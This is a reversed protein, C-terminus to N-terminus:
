AKQTTPASATRGTPWSALIGLLDSEQDDLDRFLQGADYFEAVAARYQRVSEGIAQEKAGELNAIATEAKKKRSTIMWYILGGAGLLVIVGAIPNLLMAVLTVVAAIAIPLIMSTMRFRLRERMASIAQDWVTSLGQIATAEPVDTRTQWGPFGMTRAPDSHTPSLVITVDSLLGARYDRTFRGIGAVADDRSTGVATRQTGAGVGLSDPQMAAATQLSVLDLSEDLSAQLADARERARQLDGNEDVISENYLIERRLPLEDEDFDTVLTELIDDLVDEAVRSRSETRDRVSEFWDAAVPLASASELLAEVQPWQPSVQRLVPYETQDLQQRHTGLFKQWSANQQEIVETEARLRSNWETIREEALAVGQPGFAGINVCELVIVFERTLNMPDLGLLYQRLWRVSSDLRQQRRLVLAFFLATKRPDRRFAEELSKQALETDDRSWSALAVLAPALWYRPTQIMLEESIQGVTRNSVNGVDFAQLTGISTRRVVNHHGFERDLDDKLGSLKTEARQINATREAQQVYEEFQRRLDALEGQTSAIDTRAYGVETTVTAIQHGLQNGLEEVARVIPRLDPTNVQLM